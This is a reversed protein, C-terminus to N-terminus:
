QETAPWLPAGYTFISNVLSTFFRMKLDHPIHAKWIHKLKSIVAWAKGKRNEFAMHSFGPRTGLYTYSQVKGVM